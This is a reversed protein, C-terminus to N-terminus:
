EVYIMKRVMGGDVVLNAGTVFGASALYLVAEAVDSPRGVRGAPHQRHAEPTLAEYDGTEIWGPSICNVRISRDALSVALSHTLTVLGGKSAAYAETNAESMLARTSAINIVSGGGLAPLLGKVMLYAARLNTNLVRDWDEIEQEPLPRWAGGIGANNVLLDIKPHRELIQSVLRAVEDSRSLDAVFGDPTEHRDVALATGGEARIRDVIAKGIGQAGGTVVAVM